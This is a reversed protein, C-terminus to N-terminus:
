APKAVARAPTTSLDLAKVAKAFETVKVEARMQVPNAADPDCQSGCKFGDIFFAREVEITFHQDAAPTAAGAPSPLQDNVQLRVWSEPPVETTTELVLM